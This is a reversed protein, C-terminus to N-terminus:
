DKRIEMLTIRHVHGREYGRRFADDLEEDSYSDRLSSEADGYAIGRRKAHQAAEFGKRYSLEDSEFDRDLHGYHNSEDNRLEAWWNERLEDLDMAGARELVERVDDTQKGEETYVVVVSNGHRL